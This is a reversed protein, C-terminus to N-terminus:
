QSREDKPLLFGPGTVAAQGVPRTGSALEAGGRENGQGTANGGGSADIAHPPVRGQWPQLWDFQPGSRGWGADTGHALAAVAAGAARSAAAPGGWALQSAAVRAQADSDSVAHGAGTLISISRAFPAYPQDFQSLRLPGDPLGSARDLPSFDLAVRARLVGRDDVSWDRRLTDAYPTAVGPQAWAPLPNHRHWSSHVGSQPDLLRMGRRDTWRHASGSFFRQDLAEAHDIHGPDARSALFAAHRSAHTASLAMDQYHALWHIAVWLVALALMAVLSEVLAQGRQGGRPFRGGQPGPPRCAARGPPRGFVPLRPKRRSQHDPKGAPRLRAQWFPHFANPLERQGDGRAHPRRFYSEAASQSTLQLGERGNRKLSVHFHATSGGHASALDYFVPLGGGPWQRRAAHARSNALPNANGGSIDWSTSERVWRWFDQDAFNEPPDEVYPTEMLVSERPHVWGWAMSYERFYCGIWRNSRVAHYSQTDMSQWYGGEDLLTRGRRRLEHRRAPCRADVPFLSRATHDRPDLFRYLGTVDHLFPRLRPNGAHAALFGPVADETVSLDFGSEGPYSAALVERMARDRVSPLNAAVASSVAQLVARSIRDHEAYASALTGHESASHELGAAKLAALYAAAHEPGFHMGIVYAPPNAALAQIAETGAFHAWSGLTVLHAMAAQHAVQTRNIYSLMNLARAQVLAGSYAAADLAHDQRAKEAVVMGVDFYRVFATAVAATLLLGLILAQGQQGQGRSFRGRMRAHCDFGAAPRTIM